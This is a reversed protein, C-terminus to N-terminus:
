VKRFTSNENVSNVYLSVFGIFHRELGVLFGSCLYVTSRLSSGYGHHYFKSIDAVVLKGILSLELGM